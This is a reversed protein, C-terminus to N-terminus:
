EETDEFYRDSRTHRASERELRDHGPTSKGKWDFVIVAAKSDYYVECEGGAAPIGKGTQPIEKSRVIPLAQLQLPIERSGIM